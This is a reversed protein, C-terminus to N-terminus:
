CCVTAYTNRKHSPKLFGDCLTHVKHSPLKHLPHSVTAYAVDSGNCLTGETTTIVYYTQDLEHFICDLVSYSQSPDAVTKKRSGSPLASPFHHLVAGNRLRSVTTGKSSVVFCRKVAPRAFVYWDHNLRDPVDIMWEPIMLQKAFWKRAEPGKLRSAQGVDFERRGGTMLKTSRFKMSRHLPKSLCCTKRKRTLHISLHLRM